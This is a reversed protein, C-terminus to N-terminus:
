FNVANLIRRTLIVFMLMLGVDGVTSAYVLQLDSLRNLKLQTLAYRNVDSLWRLLVFQETGASRIQQLGLM